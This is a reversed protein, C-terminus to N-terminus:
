LCTWSIHNYGNSILIQLNIARQDSGRIAFAIGKAMDLSSFYLIYLIDTPTRPHPHLLYGILLWSNFREQISWLNSAENMSLWIYTINAHLCKSFWAESSRSSDWFYFLVSSSKDILKMQHSHTTLFRKGYILHPVPLPKLPQKIVQNIM